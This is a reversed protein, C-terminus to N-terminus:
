DWARDLGSVTLAVRRALGHEYGRRALFGVLRRAVAEPELSDPLRRMRERALETAVAVVDREALVALAQEAVIEPVGRRALEQRLRPVGYGRGQGRDTVWARAFAADDVAGLERARALAADCVDPEYARATLKAAIESETQPRQRTSRLIFAVAADVDHGRRATGSTPRVTM